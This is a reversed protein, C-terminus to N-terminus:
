YTRFLTMLRDYVAEGVQKGVSRGLLDGQEFHIGGLRRSYGAAEACETLTEFEFDIDVPPM